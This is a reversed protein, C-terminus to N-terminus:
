NSQVPLRGFDLKAHHASAFDGGAPAASRAEVGLHHGFMNMAHSMFAETQMFEFALCLATVSFIAALALKQRENCIIESEASPTRSRSSALLSVTWFAAVIFLVIASGLLAACLMSVGAAAMWRMRRSSFISQLLRLGDSGPFPMINFTNVVLQWAIVGFACLAIWPLPNRHLAAAIALKDKGQAFQLAHIMRDLYPLFPLLALCAAASFAIGAIAVIGAEFANDPNRPSAAVGGAFPILSITVNRHGMLVLALAHGFEHLLLALVLTATVLFATLYAGGDFPKWLLTQNILAFFSLFAMLALRWGTFRISPECAALSHGRAAADLAALHSQFTTRRMEYGFYGRVPGEATLVVQTVGASTEILDLHECSQVPEGKVFNDSGVLCSTLGNGQVIRTWKEKRPVFPRQSGKPRALYEVVLPDDDLIRAERQEWHPHWSFNFERPDLLRWVAERPARITRKVTTKRAGLRLRFFFWFAMFSLAVPLVFSLISGFTNAM